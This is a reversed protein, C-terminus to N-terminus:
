APVLRTLLARAEPSELSPVHWDAGIDAGVQKPVGVVPIGADRAARVGTPSDEFALCRSPLAGATAAAHLYLDPFPKPRSADEVTVVADFQDQLGASRLTGAVLRGPSNSVVLMAVRGHLSEVLGRIGPLPAMPEAVLVEMRALLERTIAPGADPAGLMAAMRRGVEPFQQGLVQKKHEPTFVAGHEAFIATEAVTFLEETAVLLGDCDFLVAEVCGRMGDPVASTTTQRAM